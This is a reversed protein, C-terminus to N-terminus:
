YDYRNERGRTTRHTTQGRGRNGRNVTRSHYNDRGRHGVHSRYKRHGEYRIEFILKDTLLSLNKLENLISQLLDLGTLVPHGENSDYDKEDYDEYDDSSDPLPVPESIDPDVPTAIPVANPQEPVIEADSTGSPVTRPAVSLTTKPAKENMILKRVVPRKPRIIHTSEM